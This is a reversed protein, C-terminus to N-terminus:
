SDSVDRVYRRAERPDDADHPFTVGKLRSLSRASAGNEATAAAPAGVSKAGEGRYNVASDFVTASLDLAAADLRTGRDTRRGKGPVHWHALSSAVAGDGRSTAPFQRQANSGSREQTARGEIM